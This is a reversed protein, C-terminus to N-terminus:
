SGWPYPVTPPWTGGRYIEEECARILAGSSDQHRRLSVNLLMLSLAMANVPIPIAEARREWPDDIFRTEHNAAVPESYTAAMGAFNPHAHESLDDYVGKIAGDFTKDLREIITVINKAKIFEPRGWGETRSGLLVAMAHEDFASLASRDSSNM